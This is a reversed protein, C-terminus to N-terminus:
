RVGGVPWAERASRARSGQLWNAVVETFAEPRELMPSHGCRSLYCLQAGPILERFREGVDPPTIRDERGWVLLTPVQIARLRDGVNQRKADQAFRLVQLASARTTLVARVDHVWADGVLRPDYFAEEMKRRVYERSPRRPVRRTFGRELLGSSGTLMLKSVREPHKLALEIAVHGGLSNGGVAARSIELADLFGRVYDRLGDVSPECLAPGLIPLSLAMPRCLDALGDLVGDWHHMQGILGHLLLLPEGEGRELWRFEPHRAKDVKEEEGMHLLM